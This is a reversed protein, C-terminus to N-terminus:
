SPGGIPDSVPFQHDIKKLAAALSAEEIQMDVPLIRLGDARAQRYWMKGLEKNIPMPVITTCTEALVWARGRESVPFFWWESFGFRVELDVAPTVQGTNAEM